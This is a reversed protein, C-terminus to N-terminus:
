GFMLMEIFNFYQGFRAESYQGLNLKTVEVLVDSEFDGRFKLKLIKM